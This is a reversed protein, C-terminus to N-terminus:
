PSDDGRHKARCRRLRDATEEIRERGELAGLLDAPLAAGGRTTGWIAGAMAGITDVDGGVRRTFELLAGFPADAFRAALYLATIVSGEATITNGLAGAVEAPSPQAADRIWARAHAHRAAFPETVTIADLTAAAPAGGVAAAVFRAVLQAGAIATPHAHTIVAMAEVAADLAAPDDAFVLGVVPARMAAGNGYSGDPYVSRSAAAWPMGSRIRRLVRAAGPGYGRSWRYGAAFRRALDDPDIAGDAAILADALDLSMQTDDTYRWRGGVRGILRWVLREVPGGEYPAGLADGLALGLLCGRHRDPASM